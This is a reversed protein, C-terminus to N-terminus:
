ATVPIPHRAFFGALGEAMGRPNQIQLLHTANPLVFGETQPLWTKLLNDIETWGPWLGPSEGGLVSLAPAAIRAAQEQTFSWEALAPLEIQFFTAADAVAQVMAGPLVRETVARYGAGAAGQLFADVAEAVKGSAYLEGAPAMNEAFQQGSPVAMVAPELLALSHVVEPADLALQLAIVGGYSHGAVHAREIGLTRLLVRADAAQQAISFPAVARSSGAFGRRHYAILQLRNAIAPEALLPAYADAIISGHILLVPEGTGQVEYEITAGNIQTTQM